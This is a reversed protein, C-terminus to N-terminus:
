LLERNSPEGDYLCARGHGGAKENYSSLTDAGYKKYYCYWTISSGEQYAFRNNCYYSFDQYTFYIEMGYLTGPNYYIGTINDTSMNHGNAYNILNNTMTIASNYNSISNSANTIDNAILYDLFDKYDQFSYGYTNTYCGLFLVLLLIIFGFGKKKM